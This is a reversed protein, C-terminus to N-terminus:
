KPSPPEAPGPKCQGTEPDCVQGRPCANCEQREAVTKRLTATVGACFLTDEMRANNACSEATPLHCAAGLAPVILLFLRRVVSNYGLRSIPWAETVSRAVRWRARMQTGAVRLAAGAERELPGGRRHGRLGDGPLAVRQWAEDGGGAEDPKPSGVWAEVVEDGPLARAGEAKARVHSELAGRLAEV